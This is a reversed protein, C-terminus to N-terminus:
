CRCSGGMMTGSVVRLSDANTRASRRDSQDGEGSVEARVRAVMMTGSVVRLSGRKDASIQPAKRDNDYALRKFQPEVGFNLLLGVEIDTARLHNLLQAEHASELVRAAKLELIVAKEVFIDAKFDGIMRGRFWM